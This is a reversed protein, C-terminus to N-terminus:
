KTFTGDNKQEEVIEDTNDLLKRLVDLTQAPIDSEVAADMGYASFTGSSSLTTDVADTIDEETQQRLSGVAAFYAENETEYKSKAEKVAQLLDNLTKNDAGNAKADDYAKQAKQWEDKAKGRAEGSVEAITKALGEEASKLEMDAEELGVGMLIAEAQSDRAEQVKAEAAVLRADKQEPKELEPNREKWAAYESDSQKQREDIVGQGIKAIEDQRWQEIQSYQGYLASADGGAKETTAIKKDLASVKSQYKQDLEYLAKKQPSMLDTDAKMGALETKATDREAREAKSKTKMDELAEPTYVTEEGSVGAAGEEEDLGDDIPDLQRLQRIAENKRRLILDSEREFDEKEEASLADYGLLEWGKGFVSVKKREYKKELRDLNANEEAIQLQLAHIKDQKQQELMKAQAEAMGKIKGTDKDIELGLDGYKDTLAAILANAEEIESNSLPDEIDAIEQLRDFLAQDAAHAKDMEEVHKSAADSISYLRKETEALHKNWLMWAGVIAGVAVAGGVLLPNAAIALGLAKFGAILAPLATTIGMIGAKWTAIVAISAGIGTVFPTYEKVFYSVAKAGSTIYDLTTSLAPALNGTLVKSIGAASTKMRNMADALAVADATAEEGMVAGIDKGEEILKKIGASGEQFFPLLKFGADGFLAISVRTQEAKDGINKIYDALKMLQEENDLGTFSKANLGVKGLKNLAREDGMNAAGLTNQFAKIGDTLTQFDAGCQEAAFKLGGLSDVGIGIRQSTKSITDGLQVFSNVAGALPAIIYQTVALHVAQFATAAATIGASAQSFSSQSRELASNVSRFAKQFSNLEKEARQLETTNAKVNITLDDTM